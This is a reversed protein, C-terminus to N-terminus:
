RCCLESWCADWRSSHKHQNPSLM